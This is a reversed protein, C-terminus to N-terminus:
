SPPFVSTSAATAAARAAKFPGQPLIVWASRMAKSFLTALRMLSRKSSNKVASHKSVPLGRLIAAWISIGRPAALKLAKESVRALWGVSAKRKSVGSPLPAMLKPCRVGLPTIATIAGQFKGKNNIVHFTPGAKAHPFVTTTFGESSVGAVVVKNPSTIFSHPTGAPTNLTTCPKPGLEAPANKVSCGSISAMVNVPSVRVPSIMIFAAATPNRLIEISHPPLFGAITNASQSKSFATSPVMREAKTFQPCTHKPVSRTYTSRGNNSANKARIFSSTALSFGPRGSSGSAM